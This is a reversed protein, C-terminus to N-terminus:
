ALPRREAMTLESLPMVLRCTGLSTITSAEIGAIIRSTPCSTPRRRCAARCWPSSGPGSSRWADILRDDLVALRVAREIRRGHAAHRVDPQHRLLGLLVARVVLGELDGASPATRTTSSAPLSAARVTRDLRAVDEAHALGLVRRDLVPDLERHAARAEAVRRGHEPEVRLAGMVGLDDGLDLLVQLVVVSLTEIDADQRRDFGDLNESSRM